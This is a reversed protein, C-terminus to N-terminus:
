ATPSGDPSLTRKAYDRDAKARAGREVSLEWVSPGAPVPATAELARVTGDWGGTAFGGGSPLGLRLIGRGTELILRRILRPLDGAAAWSDAWRLIEKQDVLRLTTM